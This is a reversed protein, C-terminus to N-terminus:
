EIGKGGVRVLPRVKLFQMQFFLRITYTENNHHTIFFFQYICVVYCVSPYTLTVHPPYQRMNNKEVEAHFCSSITRDQPHM